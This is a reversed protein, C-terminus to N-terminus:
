ATEEQKNKYVVIKVGDIETILKKENDNVSLVDHELFLHTFDLERFMLIEKEGQWRLQINLISYNDNESLDTIIDQAENMLDVLRNIKEIPTM